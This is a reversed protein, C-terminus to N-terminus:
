TLDDFIPLEGRRTVHGEDVRVHDAVFHGYLCERIFFAHLSDGQHFVRPFLLRAPVLGPVLRFPVPVQRPHCVLLGPLVQRVKRRIVRLVGALGTKVGSTQCTAVV